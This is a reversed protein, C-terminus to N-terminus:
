RMFEHADEQKGYSFDRSINKLQSVIDVPSFPRNQKVKFAHEELSCMFCWNNIRGALFLIIVDNYLQLNDYAAGNVVVIAYSFKLSLESSFLHILVPRKCYRRHDGRLLYAVM